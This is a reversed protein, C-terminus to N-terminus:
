GAQEVDRSVHDRKLFGDRRHARRPGCLRLTLEDYPDGGLDLAGHHRLLGLGRRWAHDHPLDEDPRNRRSGLRHGCPRGRRLGGCSWGRLLPRLARLRSRRWRRRRLGDHRIRLRGRRRRRGASVLVVIIVTAINPGGAPAAAIIVVITAVVIVVIVVAAVSVVPVVLSGAHRAGPIEGAAESDPADEQGGPVHPPVDRLLVALPDVPLRDLV